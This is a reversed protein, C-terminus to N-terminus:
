RRPLNASALALQVQAEPQGIKAVAYPTQARPAHPDGPPLVAAGAALFVALTLAGAILLTKM